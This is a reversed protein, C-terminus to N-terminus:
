RVPHLLKRATNYDTIQKALQRTEKEELAHIRLQISFTQKPQLSYDFVVLNDVNNNHDVASSGIEIGQGDWNKTLLPKGTSSYTFEKSNKGGHCYWTQFYPCPPFDVRIGKGSPYLQLASNIPKAEDFFKMLGKHIYGYETRIDTNEAPHWTEIDDPLRNGSREEVTASPVLLRSGDEPNFTIHYGWDPTLNQDSINTIEDILEIIPQNKFISYTKNVQFMAEGREYWVKDDDGQFNRYVFSTTIDIRDEKILCNVTEVPINSTEGHVPHVFGTEQETRPMGWNRLGYFEIGSIFTKLFAFGIVPKGDIAIEDSYPDYKDSDILPLPADWFIARNNQYAQGLSLGKSPLLEVDIQPTKIRLRNCNEPEENKHYLEVYFDNTTYRTEANAHRNKCNLRITQEQNM